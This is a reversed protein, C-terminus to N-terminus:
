KSQTVHVMPWPYDITLRDGDLSYYLTADVFQYQADYMLKISHESENIAYDGYFVGDEGFKGDETFRFAWNDKTWLGIIGEGPQSPDRDYTSSEYFIMQEGDMMYRHEFVNGEKDKLIIHSDDKTYTYKENKYVAKGNDSLALVETEPEHNYAWKETNTGCGALLMSLILLTAMCAKIGAKKM